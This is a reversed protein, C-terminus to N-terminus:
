GGEWARWPTADLLAQLLVEPSSYADVDELIYTALLKRDKSGAKRRTVLCLTRAQHHHFVISVTEVM